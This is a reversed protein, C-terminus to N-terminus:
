AIEDRKPMTLSDKWRMFSDKEVRLAGQHNGSKVCNFHGAKAHEWITYRTVGLEKGAETTTLYEKPKEEPKKIISDMRKNINEEKWKLYESENLDNIGPFGKNFYGRWFSGDSIKVDLIKKNKKNAESIKQIADKVYARYKGRETVLILTSVRHERIYKDLLFFNPICIVVNINKM